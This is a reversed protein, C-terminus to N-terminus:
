SCSYKVSHLEFKGSFSIMLLSALHCLAVIYAVSHAEFVDCVAGTECRHRRREALTRGVIPDRGVRWINWIEACIRVAITLDIQHANHGLLM